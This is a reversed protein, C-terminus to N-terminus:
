APGRMTLNLVFSGGICQGYLHCRDIRLHALLAIHDSADSDWGDQATIPAYSQGGADRQDMVIVRYQTAFGTAPNMPAM